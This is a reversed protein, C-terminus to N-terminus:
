WKLDFSLVSYWCVNILFYFIVVIFIRIVLFVETRFSILNTLSNYLYVIVCIVGEFQCLGSNMSSEGSNNLDIWSDHNNQGQGKKKWGWDRMGKQLETSYRKLIGKAFNLYKGYRIEFNNKRNDHIISNFSRNFHCYWKKFICYSYLKKCAM